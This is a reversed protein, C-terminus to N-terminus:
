WSTRATRTPGAEITVSENVTVTEAYTGECVMITEDASAANVADQIASHAPTDCGDLAPENNDNVILDPQAQAPWSRWLGLSLGLAAVVVVLAVVGTRSRLWKM